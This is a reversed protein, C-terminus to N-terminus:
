GLVIFSQKSRFAHSSHLRHCTRLSAWSLMSIWSCLPFVAHRVARCSIWVSIARLRGQLNRNIVAGRGSSGASLLGSRKSTHLLKYCWSKDKMLAHNLPSRIRFRVHSASLTENWQLRCPPTAYLASEPKDHPPSRLGEKSFYKLPLVSSFLTVPMGPWSNEGNTTKTIFGCLLCGNINFTPLFFLKWHM